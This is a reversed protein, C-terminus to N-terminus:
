DQGKSQSEAGNNVDGATGTIINNYGEGDQAYSITDYQSWLNAWYIHAFINSGVLLLALAVIIGILANRLKEHRRESVEYVIYPISAVNEFSKAEDQSIITKKTKTKTEVLRVDKRIQIIDCAM